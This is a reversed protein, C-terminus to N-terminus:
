NRKIPMIGSLRASAVDIITYDESEIQENFEDYSYVGLASTFSTVHDTNAGMLTTEITLIGGDPGTTGIGEVDIQGPYDIALFAHGPAMVLYPNLGIKRYISALMVTGDVCNAQVNNIVQDIFRVYQVGVYQAENSTNVVNSYRTGRSSFYEWVWILQNLFDQASGQYDVFCRERDVSLIEQLIKDIAPYDENIYMAFMESVDIWEEGAMDYMAYVCENVPRYKVVYNIRDVEEGDIQLICTMTASGGQAMNIFDDYKWKIIPAIEMAGAESASEQIITEENINTEEVIIRIVSGDEPANLYFSYFLDSPDDQTSNWLALSPYFKGEFMEDVLISFDIEEVDYASQSQTADEKTTSAFSTISSLMMVM